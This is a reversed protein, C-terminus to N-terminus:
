VPRRAYAPVASAAKKASVPFVPDEEMSFSLTVPRQALEILKKVEKFRGAGLLRAGM